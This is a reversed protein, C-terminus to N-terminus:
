REPRSAPGEHDLVNRISTLLSDMAVPKSLIALAGAELAQVRAHDDAFALILIIPIRFGLATQRQLLQVGSIGGLRIDTILCLASALDACDLLEEASSFGIANFSSAELFDQIAELVTTDGDVCAIILGQPM